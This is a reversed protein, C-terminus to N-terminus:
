QMDGLVVREVGDVTTGDQPAVGVPNYSENFVSVVAKGQRLVFKKALAEAIVLKPDDKSVHFNVKEEGDAGDIFITPIDTNGKFRLYTFRGDDFVMEPIFAKGRSNASQRYNWNKPLPANNAMRHQLVLFESLQHQENFEAQYQAYQMAKNQEAKILADQPYEFIVRFMPQDSLSSGRTSGKPNQLVKFDFSYDRKNTRVELNNHTARDKPKVWIQNSGADATICWSNSEQECNAPFGSAAGREAIQEGEGLIIRTVTGRQVTIKYVDNPQYVVKRIRADAGDPAPLVAGHSFSIAFLSLTLVTLKNV